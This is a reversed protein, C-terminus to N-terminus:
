LPIRKGSEMAEYVAHMIKMDRLGMEAPVPSVQGNQIALAIADMQRAQQPCPPFETIVADSRKMVLGNYNFAPDLEFWGNEATVRLYSSTESFSTRCYAMLGDPMELEFVLTEEIGNFKDQDTLPLAQATVAVPEQGTLYCVAQICYIGVDVLPGGGSQEKSLRWVSKPPVFSFSCEIRTVKGMAQEQAMRIMERHYPDFHLRYGISITKGTREAVAMMQEAEEVTSAMPKECIVHKGAELAKITYTAHLNHPLVIYVIDISSDYSIQEFQDYTYIQRDTLGYKEKYFASKVRDGTIVASLYCHETFAFAPALQETAYYGLGCLAIGTTGIKKQEM